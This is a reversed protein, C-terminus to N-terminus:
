SRSIRFLNEMALLGLAKSFFQFVANPIGSHPGNWVARTYFFCRGKDESVHINGTLGNLFGQNFRFSYTGLAQVRQLKFDLVMDFPMLTHGMNFILREEKEIYKSKKVFGIWDAYKEYRSLKRLAVRCSRTHLGAISYDLSQRKNDGETSNVISISQPGKKRVAQRFSKKHPINKLFIPSATSSVLLFFSVCIVCLTKQM